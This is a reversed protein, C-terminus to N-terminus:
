FTIMTAMLEVVFSPALYIEGTVRHKWNNLWPPWNLPYNGMLCIVVLCGVISVMPGEVKSKAEFDEISEDSYKLIKQTYDEM